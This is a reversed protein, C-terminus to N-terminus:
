VTVQTGPAKVEHALPCASPAQTRRIKSSVLGQRVSKKLKPTLLLMPCKAPKEKATTALPAPM